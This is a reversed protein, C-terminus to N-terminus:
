PGVRTVSGMAAEMTPGAASYLVLEATCDRRASRRSPREDAIGPCQYSATPRPRSGRARFQRVAGSRETARPRSTLAVRSPCYPRHRELKRPAGLRYSSTTAQTPLLQSDEKEEGHQNNTAEQKTAKRLARASDRCPTLLYSARPHTVRQRRRDLVHGEM